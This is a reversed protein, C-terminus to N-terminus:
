QNFLVLSQDSHPLKPSNIFSKDESRTSDIYVFQQNISPNNIISQPSHYRSSHQDPSFQKFQSQSIPATISPHITKLFRVPRASYPRQNISQLIAISRSSHQDSSFQKFQFQSIPATISHHITQSFRVPRASYSRQYM